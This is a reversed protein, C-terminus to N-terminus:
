APAVLNRAALGLERGDHHVQGFFQRAVVSRVTQTGSDGNGQHDCLRSAFLLNSHYQNEECQRKRHHVEKFTLSLDTKAGMPSLIHCVFPRNASLLRVRSLARRVRNPHRSPPSDRAFDKPFQRNVQRFWGRCNARQPSRNDCEQAICALTFALLSATEALARLPGANQHPANDSRNLGGFRFLHQGTSSSRPLYPRSNLSLSLREPHSKPVGQIMPYFFLRRLESRRSSDRLPPAPHTQYRKKPHRATPGSSRTRRPM